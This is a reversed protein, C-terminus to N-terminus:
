FPDGPVPEKSRVPLDGTTSFATTSARQALVADVNFLFMAVPQGGVDEVLHRVGPVMGAEVAPVAEDWSVHPGLLSRLHAARIIYIGEEDPHRVAKPLKGDRIDKCIRIAQATAVDAIAAQDIPGVSIVSTDAPAGAPAEPADRTAAGELPSEGVAAEPAAAEASESAADTAAPEQVPAAPANAAVDDKAWDPTDEPPAPAAAPKPPPPGKEPKPTGPQLKAKAEIEEDSM